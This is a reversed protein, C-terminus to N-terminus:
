DTSSTAIYSIIQPRVDKGINLLALNKNPFAIKTNNYNPTIYITM